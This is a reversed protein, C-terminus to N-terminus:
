APRRLPAGPYPRTWRRRHRLIAREKPNGALPRGVGWGTSFPIPGIQDFFVERIARVTAGVCLPESSRWGREPMIRVHRRCGCEQGPQGVRRDHRHDGGIRKLAPRDFQNRQHRQDAPQHQEPRYRHEGADLARDSGVVQKGAQGVLGQDCDEGQQDDALAQEMSVRQLSRGRQQDAKAAAGAHAGDDDDKGRGHGAARDDVVRRHHDNRGIMALIAAARLTGAEL